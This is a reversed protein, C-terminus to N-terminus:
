RVKVTFVAVANRVPSYQEGTDPTRHVFTIANVKKYFQQAAADYYWDEDFILENFLTYETGIDGTIFSNDKLAHIKAQLAAPKLIKATDAGDYVAVKGAMALDLVQQIFRYRQSPYVDRLPAGSYFASSYGTGGISAEVEHPAIAVSSRIHRGVLNAPAMIAAPDAPQMETTFLFAPRRIDSNMKFHALGVARVEKQFNMAVPDFYWAEYFTFGSFYAYDLDTRVVEERFGETTETFFPVLITDFRTFIGDLVADNLPTRKAQWPSYGNWGPFGAYAKAQRRKVQGAIHAALSAMRASDAVMPGEALVEGPHWFHSAYFISDIRVPGSLFPSVPKVGNLPLFAFRKVDWLWGYTGEESQTFVVGSVTKEFRRAVPDMTWSEVFRLNNASSISPMRLSAEKGDLKRTYPYISDYLAASKGAASTKLSAVLTKYASLREMRWVSDTGAVEDEPEYDYTIGNVNVVNANAFREGTSSFPIYLLKGAHEKKSLTYNWVALIMGKVTKRLTLTSADYYWTEHFVVAHINEPVVLETYTSMLEEGTFDDIEYVTDVPALIAKAESASLPKSFPYVPRYATITGNRVGELLPSFFAHNLPYEMGQHWWQAYAKHDSIEKELHVTYLFEGLSVPPDKEPPPSPFFSQSLLAALPLLLLLVSPRM